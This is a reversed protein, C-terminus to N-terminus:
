GAEASPAADDAPPSGRRVPPPPAWGPKGVPSTPSPAAEADGEAATIAAVAERQAPTPSLLPYSRAEHGKWLGVKGERIMVMTKGYRATVDQVSRDLVEYHRGTVQRLAPGLTEALYDPDPNAAFAIELAAVVDEDLLDRPLPRSIYAMM